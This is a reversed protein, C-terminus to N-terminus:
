EVANYIYSYYDATIVGNTIYIRTENDDFQISTVNSIVRTPATLEGENYTITVTGAEFDFVCLDARVTVPPEDPRTPLDGCGVLIFIATVILYIAVYANLNKM